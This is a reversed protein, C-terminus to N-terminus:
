NRPPPPPEPREWERRKGFPSETSRPERQMFIAEDETIRSDITNSFAHGTALGNEVQVSVPSNLYQGTPLCTVQWHNTAVRVVCFRHTAPLLNRPKLYDVAKDIATRADSSLAEDLSCAPAVHWKEPEDGKAPEFYLVHEYASPAASPPQSAAIAALRPPPKMAQNAPRCAPFIAPVILILSYRLGMRPM